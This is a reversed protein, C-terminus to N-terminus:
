GGQEVAVPPLDRHVYEQWGPAISGMLAALTLDTLDAETLTDLITRVAETVPLDRLADWLLGGHVVRTIVPKPHTFPDLPAENM